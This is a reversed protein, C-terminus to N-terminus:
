HLMEEDVKIPVTVLIHTGLDERSHIQLVGGIMKAREEMTILGMDSTESM